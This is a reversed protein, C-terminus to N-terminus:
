KAKQHDNICLYETEREEKETDKGARNCGGKDPFRWTLYWM